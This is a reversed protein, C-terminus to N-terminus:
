RGGDFLSVPTEILIELRLMLIKSGSASVKSQLISVDGSIPLLV